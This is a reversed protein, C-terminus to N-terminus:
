AHTRTERPSRVRAAPEAYYQEICWPVVQAVIEQAANSPEFRWRAHARVVSLARAIEAKISIIVREATWGQLRMADTYACVIARLRAGSPDEGRFVAILARELSASSGSAADVHAPRNPM